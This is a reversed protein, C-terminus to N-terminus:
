NYRLYAYLWIVAFAVLLISTWYRTNLLRPDQWFGIPSWTNAWVHGAYSEKVNCFKSVEPNGDKDKAGVYPYFVCPDTIVVDKYLEPNSEYLKTMAMPGTTYVAGMNHEYNKAIYNILDVWFKQKPPSIMIANCIVIERKYLNRAHELPERGLVIKGMDVYKDISKFPVMDMDAYVGGLYMIIYRAFDVREINQTFSDYL